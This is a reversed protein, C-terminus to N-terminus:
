NDKYQRVYCTFKQVCGKCHTDQECDETKYCMYSDPSKYLTTSM